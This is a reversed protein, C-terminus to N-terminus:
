GKLKLRELKKRDAEQRKELKEVKELRKREDDEAKMEVSMRDAYSWSSKYKVLGPVRKLDAEEAGIEYELYRGTYRVEEKKTFTLGKSALYTELALIGKEDHPYLTIDMNYTHNYLTFTFVRTPGSFAGGGQTM